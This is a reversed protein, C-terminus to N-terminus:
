SQAAEGRGRGRAWEEGEEEEEDKKEEKKKKFKEKWTVQNFSKSFLIIQLEFIKYETM